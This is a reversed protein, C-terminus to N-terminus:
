FHFIIVSFVIPQTDHSKRNKFLSIDNFCIIFFSVSPQLSGILWGCCKKRPGAGEGWLEKWVRYGGHGGHGWEFSWSTEINPCTNFLYQWPM